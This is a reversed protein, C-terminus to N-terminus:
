QGPNQGHTNTNPGRSGPNTLGINASETQSINNLLVSFIFNNTIADSGLDFNIQDQSTNTQQQTNRFINNLYNSSVDSQIDRTQNNFFLNMGFDQNKLGSQQNRTISTLDALFKDTTNKMMKASSSDATLKNLKNQEAQKRKFEEYEAYDDEQKLEIRTPKRIM